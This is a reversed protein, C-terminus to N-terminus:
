GLRKNLQGEKHPPLSGNVELCMEDGRKLRRLALREGTHRNELIMTPVASEAM